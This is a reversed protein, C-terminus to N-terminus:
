MRRAERRRVFKVIEISSIPMMFRTFVNPFIHNPYFFFINCDLEILFEDRRGNRWVRTPGSAEKGSERPSYCGFRPDRVIKPVTRQYWRQSLTRRHKSRESSRYKSPSFSLAVCREALYRSYCGALSSICAVILFAGVTQRWLAVNHGPEITNERPLRTEPWLLGRRQRSDTGSSGSVGSTTGSRKWRRIRQGKRRRGGGTEGRAMGRTFLNASNKSGEQTRVIEHIEM